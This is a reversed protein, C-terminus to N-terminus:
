VNGGDCKWFDTTHVDGWVDGSAEAGVEAARVGAAESGGVRVGARWGM